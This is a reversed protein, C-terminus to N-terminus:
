DMKKLADGVARHFTPYAYIMSKLERVPVRAHVALTLMGLVEGAYPGAASAGVLVPDAGDEAVLKVFGEAQHIWGRGSLDGTVVRVPVGAQRAKAETLGVGGVEPDTFTVRPVADRRWVPGAEGLIDALAVGAQYIAVHTFAGEGTVDGIAWLGDAARMHDDVEIAKASEDLGMAGAGVAALDVRRGTAVLLREARYSGDETMATFASGHHDVRTVKTGTRVTIGEAAFTRALLEGAEPEEGPLLREASEVLTVEAGFRAFAQALEVGVAGGGLVILSEPVRDTSVAERNTWYPTEALGPVPPIAPVTGTAVVVGRRARLVRAEGGSGSPEVTVERDGTIRGRGRVLTAGTGAFREAAVKDNWDDTAEERIRRAVPGWDPQAHSTGALGPVRRCEALVEAARLMMKSPVCAWYPCEGGVLEAEVGAVALGAEALRQGLDEGGPGLGLVVVDFEDKRKGEKETGM